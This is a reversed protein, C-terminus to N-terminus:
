ILEKCIRAGLGERGKPTQSNNTFIPGASYKGIFEKLTVTNTAPQMCPPERECPQWPYRRAIGSTNLGGALRLPVLEWSM